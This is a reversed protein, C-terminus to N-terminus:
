DRVPDIKIRQNLKEQRRRYINAHETSSKALLRMYTRYKPLVIEPDADMILEGKDIWLVRSCMDKITGISHSVLFVCGAQERLQDLRAKTRDKVAADGTNLAEDIVLIEPEVAAAIAFRLRSAMGSSYTGMPLEIEDRLDAVEVISDFRERIEGPKMGMALCGLWINQSGSLSPQLAASVGLMIPTSTASVTGRTPRLQGSILKSLTSKGSGNRGVIGVSEGHEVVLSLPKLAKVQVTPKSKVVSDFARKLRSQKQREEQSETSVYFTMAVNNLVVAPDGVYSPRQPLALDAEETTTDGNSSM